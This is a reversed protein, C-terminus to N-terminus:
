QVPVLPTRRLLVPIAKKSTVLAMHSMQARV